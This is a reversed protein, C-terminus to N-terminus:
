TVLLHDARCRSQMQEADAICLRNAKENNASTLTLLQKRSSDTAVLMSQFMQECARPEVALSGM